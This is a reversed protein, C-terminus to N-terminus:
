LLADLKVPLYFLNDNRKVQYLIYNRKLGELMYANFDGKNAITYNNIKIIVDGDRLGCKEGVGGKYVKTVVVGNKDKLKFKMKPYGKIDSVRMNCLLEDVPSFHFSEIDKDDINIFYAKTGKLVKLQMTVDKKIGKFVSHLKISEKIRKKNIEVIRDGVRLGYKEAPSKPIISKVYLYTGKEDKKKDVFLGFVPRKSGTQLFESVMVMVDEIPIAFGIGKGEGYIATVIGIPNGDGDLLAGGSNGPNISADTQILNVYAREDIKLNRGIASVVGVTVSSSLGYPNGIVIAKEGVKIKKNRNAKLFPFDDEDTVKLLAIDYEPDSGLVFADYEKGNIFKVKIGIARSILHENTVIIGKVDLVVGSGINEISEEEDDEGAIIKKMFSTKKEEGSVKTLEETKINVIAKSVREVVEATSNEKAYVTSSSILALTLLFMVLDIYLIQIKLKSNQTETDMKKVANAKIIQLSSDM